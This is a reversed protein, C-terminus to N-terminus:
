PFSLPYETFFVRGANNDIFDNTKLPGHKQNRRRNQMHKYAKDKEPEEINHFYKRCAIKLSSKGTSASNHHIVHHCAHIAINGEQQQNFEPTDLLEEAAISMYLTVTM